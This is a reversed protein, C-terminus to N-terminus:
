AWYSLERHALECATLFDSNLSVSLLIGEDNQQLHMATVLVHIDFTDTGEQELMLRLLQLQSFALVSEKDSMELVYSLDDLLISRKNEQKHWGDFFMSHLIKEIILNENEDMELALLETVNETEIENKMFQYYKTFCASLFDNNLSYPVFEKRKLVDKSEKSLLTTLKNQM